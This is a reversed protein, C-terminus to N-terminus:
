GIVDLYVYQVGGARKGAKSTRATWREMMHVLQTTVESLMPPKEAVIQLWPSCYM